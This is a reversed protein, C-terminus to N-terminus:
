SDIKMNLRCLTQCFKFVLRLRIWVLCRCGDNGLDLYLNLIFLINTVFTTAVLGCMNLVRATMGGYEHM